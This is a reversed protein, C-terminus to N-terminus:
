TNKRTIKLGNSEYLRQIEDTWTKHHSFYPFFNVSSTENEQIYFWNNHKEPDLPTRFTHRQFLSKFMSQSVVLFHMNKNTLILIVDGIVNQKDGSPQMMRAFGTRNIFEDKEVWQSVYSLPLEFPTKQSSLELEESIDLSPNLNSAPVKQEPVKEDHLPISPEIIEEIEM